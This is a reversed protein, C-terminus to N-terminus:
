TEQGGDQSAALPLGPSCITEQNGFRRRRDTLLSDAALATFRTGPSVAPLVQSGWAVVTGTQSANAQWGGLLLAPRLTGSGTMIRPRMLGEEAAGHADRMEGVSATLTIPARANKDARARQDAGFGIGFCVAACLPVLIDRPPPPCSHRPELAWRAVFRGRSPLQSSVVEAGSRDPLRGTQQTLGM